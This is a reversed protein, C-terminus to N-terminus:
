AAEVLALDAKLTEIDFGAPTVKEGTLYDQSVIGYAEDCYREWFSWTMKQLRGWTVVTVGGADYAVLDVAHGGRGPGGWSGPANDGDFNGNWDWPQGAEIQAAASQPLQLGVFVGGFIYSAVRVVPPDFAPIKTFAGIRHDEIGTQRWYNLVDISYAGSGSSVVEFADIVAKEEVTVAQGGAEATWAEIMHGAAACTCDGIKDNGYMPWDGVRDALDLAEPAQPLASRTVYRAFLLTRVDTKVPAKGTM